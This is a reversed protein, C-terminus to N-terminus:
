FWIIPHVAPQGSGNPPSRLVETLGAAVRSDLRSRAVAQAAGILVQSAVETATSDMRATADAYAHAARVYASGARQLLLVREPVSLDTRAISTELSNRMAVRVGIAGGTIAGLAFLLLGAAIRAARRRQRAAFFGDNRLAAVVSDEVSPDLARERPLAAFLARERDTYEPIEHDDRM